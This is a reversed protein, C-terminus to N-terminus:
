PEGETSTLEVQSHFAERARRLRSAVTGPPVDLLVAIEAMTMEELEFLVFVARLELAMSDLVLDLQLRARARALLEDPAPHPDAIRDLMQPGVTERRTAGRRVDSAIRLATGFLFSRESGVRVVDLKRMAVVFVEQSADDAAASTLGLRRLSRWVFDYHQEFLGQLRMRSPTDAHDRETVQPTPIM